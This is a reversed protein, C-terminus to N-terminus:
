GEFYTNDKRPANYIEIDNYDVDAAENLKLEIPEYSPINEAGKKCFKVDYIFYDGINKYLCQAIDPQAVISGVDLKKIFDLVNKTIVDNINDKTIRAFETRYNRGEKVEIVIRLKVPEPRFFKYSYENRNDEIIVETNGIMGCGTARSNFMAEAIERNTGGDVIVAISHPPIEVGKVMKPKDDYNEAGGVRAVGNINAVNALISKFSANKSTSGFYICRNFLAEDSEEFLAKKAEAINEVREVGEVVTVIKNITGIPAVYDSLETCTFSAIVEGVGDKPISVPADIVYFYKEDTIMFDAPIETGQKANIKVQVQSNEAPKRKVRFLNWAWIDMFHGYGGLFFGNALNELFSITAMDIQVLSTIIQGQPTSPDLNIDPFLSKFLSQYDALISNKYSFNLKQLEEDFSWLLSDQLIPANASFM